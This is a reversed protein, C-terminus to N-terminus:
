DDLFASDCSYVLVLDITQVNYLTSCQHFGIMPIDVKDHILIRIVPFAM